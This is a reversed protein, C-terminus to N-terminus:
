STVPRVKALMYHLGPLIDSNSRKVKFLTSDVYCRTGFDGELVEMRMENAGGM